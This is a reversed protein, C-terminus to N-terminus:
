TPGAAFLSRLTTNLWLDNALNGPRSEQCLAKFHAYETAWTPDEQVLTIAEEPPRGAPMVRRRHRFTSPGWKCLSEIHASGNEAFVDCTFHNRWSLMTMELQISMVGVSTLVVHDPSKNEFRNIATPVFPADPIGLWFHITDLLHSGLDGLVGSGQDRWASNRVLRATGNGYFLRVAYIRGLDGDEILAKMRMFHPEFRHNYATYCIAGTSAAADIIDRIDADDDAIVPKEVLFHKGERVLMTMLSIKAEDPICLLAADYSNHPVDALQRYDVGDKVPDVTAVVDAGAATVRKAGQVGMGVVVVRM